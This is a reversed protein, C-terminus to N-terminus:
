PHKLHSPVHAAVDAWTALVTLACALKQALIYRQTSIGWRAREINWTGPLVPGGFGM